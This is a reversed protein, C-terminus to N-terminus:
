RMEIDNTMWGKMLLAVAEPSDQVMERVSELKMDVHQEIGDVTIRKKKKRRPVPVDDLMDEISVPEDAIREMTSATGPPFQQAQQGTLEAFQQQVSTPLLHGNPIYGENLESVSPAATGIMTRLAAKSSKLFIILLVIAIVGIAGIKAFEEMKAQKQAATMLNLQVKADTNTFPFQSITVVHSTDGSTVGALTSLYTQIGKQQDATVSNSDVLVAVRLAQVAGPAVQTDTELKNNDYNTTTSKHEYTGTKSAAASTQAPYGNAGPTNATIGAPPPAASAGPGVSTYKEDNIASSVMLPHAANNTYATSLTHVQDYNLTAQVSVIAKHTGLVDDIYSQMERRLDDSYLHEAVMRTSALGSPGSQSSGDWLQNGDTDVVAINKLDLGPVAKSVLNAIGMTQDSTLQMGPKLGIVVSASPPTDSGAFPSNNGASLHVAASSIENMSSITQALEGEQAMRIYQASVDSTTSMGIQGLYDSGVVSGTKAPLGDRIMEMRLRDKDGVPVRISTDNDSIQYKEHEDDLKAAIAASDHPDLNTFLDTYEPETALMVAGIFCLVVLVALGISIIRTSTPASNWWGQAQGLPGAQIAPEQTGNPNTSSAPNFSAM